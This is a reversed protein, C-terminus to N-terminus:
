SVTAEIRVWFEGHFREVSGGLLVIVLYIWQVVHREVKKLLFRKVSLNWPRESVEDSVFPNSVEKRFLYSLERSSKSVPMGLCGNEAVYLALQLRHM